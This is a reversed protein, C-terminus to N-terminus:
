ELHMHAVTTVGALQAAMITDGVHLDCFQDLPKQVFVICGSQKSELMTYVIYVHEVVCSSAGSVQLRMRRGQWVSNDRGM